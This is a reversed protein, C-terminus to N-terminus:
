HHHHVEHNQTNLPEIRFRYKDAATREMVASRNTTDTYYATKGDRAIVYGKKKLVHRYAIKCRASAVLKMKTQQELGFLIRRRDCAITQNRKAHAKDVRQRNKAEGLRQLNSEGPKFCYERSKPIIYGKPPWNNRRNAAHAHQTANAQCKRVFQASKKLGLERVIRHLTSHKLGLKAMVDDNKTHKYHRILWRQQKDTLQM